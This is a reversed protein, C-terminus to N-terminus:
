KQHRGEGAGLRYEVFLMAGDVYGFESLGRHVGCCGAQMSRDLTWPAVIQMAIQRAPMATMAVPTAVRPDSATLRITLVVGVIIVKAVGVVRM